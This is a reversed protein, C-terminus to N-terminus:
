RPILTDRQPVAEAPCSEGLYWYTGSLASLDLPAAMRIYLSSDCAVSALVAVGAPGVCGCFHSLRVGSNRLPVLLDDLPQYDDPRLKLVVEVGEARAVFEGWQTEKLAVYDIDVVLRRPKWHCLMAVGVAVHRGNLIRWDENGVLTALEAVQQAVHDPCRAVCNRVDDATVGSYGLAEKLERWRRHFHSGSRNSLAPVVYLLVERLRTIQDPAVGLILNLSEDSNIICRLVYEAAFIEQISKHKFSYKTCGKGNPPRQIKLVVSLLIEDDIENARKTFKLKCQQKIHECKEESIVIVNEVLLELAEKGIVEFLDAVLDDPKNYSADLLKTLVLKKYLQLISHAVDGPMEWSLIMDPLYKHVACFHMLNIPETFLSRVDENLSEFCRTIEGAKNGKGFSEEYKRLFELQDELARLPVIEYATYCADNRTLIPGLKEMGHPRSSILVRWNSRRRKRIVESVVALSEAHVEDFGDIIFLVKLRLLAKPVNEQGGRENCLNEFHQEIVDNLTKSDRDRCEFFILLDFSILYDADVHMFFQLMINKLLTTKGAGAVGTVVVVQESAEFIKTYPLVNESSGERVMVDLAHFVDQRLVVDHSLMLMECSLTPVWLLRIAEKGDLVLRSVWYHIDNKDLGKLQDIEDSLKQKMVDSPFSLISPDMSVSYFRGAEEILDFLASTLDDFNKENQLQDMNHFVNNRMNKVVRLKDFMEKSTSTDYRRVKTFIHSLLCFIATVDFNAPSTEQAFIESNFGFEQKWERNSFVPENKETRLRDLYKRYTEYDKKGQCETKVITGMVLPSLHLNAFINCLCTNITKDSLNVASTPPSAISGAGAM